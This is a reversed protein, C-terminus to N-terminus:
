KGRSERSWSCSANYLIIIMDIYDHTVTDTISLELISYLMCLKNKIGQNIHLFNHIIHATIVHM